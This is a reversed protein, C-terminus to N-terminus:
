TTSSKDTLFALYDFATVQATTEGEVLCFDVAGVVFNADLDQLFLPTQIQQEALLCGVRVLFNCHLGIRM